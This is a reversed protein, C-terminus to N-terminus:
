PVLDKVKLRCTERKITKIRTEIISAVETNTPTRKLLYGAIKEVMETLYTNEQFCFHLNIRSPEALPSAYLTEDISEFFQDTTSVLRGYALRAELSPSTKLPEFLSKLDQILPESITGMIDGVKSDAAYQATANTFFDIITIMSQEASTPPPTASTPRRRYYARDKAQLESNDTGPFEDQPHWEFAEAQFARNMETVRYRYGRKYGKKHYILDDFLYFAVHDRSRSADYVIIDGAQPQQVKDFYADLYTDFEQKAVHRPNSGNLLGSAVLATHYCNPGSFGAAKNFMSSGFPPLFDAVDYLLAGSSESILAKEAEGNAEMLPKLVPQSVAKLSRTALVKELEAQSQGRSRLIVRQGKGISPVCIDFIDRAYCTYLQAPTDQPASSNEGTLNQLVEPPAGCAYLFAVGLLTVSFSPRIAKIM